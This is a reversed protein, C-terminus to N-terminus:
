LIMYIFCFLYVHIYEYTLRVVSVSYYAASFVTYYPITCVYLFHEHTYTNKFYIKNYLVLKHISTYNQWVICHFIVYWYVYSLGLSYATFYHLYLINNICMIIYISWVIKYRVMGDIWCSCIHILHKLWHKLNARPMIKIPYDTCKSILSNWCDHRSNRPVTIHATLFSILLDTSNFYVVLPQTTSIWM